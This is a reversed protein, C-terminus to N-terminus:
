AHPGCNKAACNGLQTRGCDYIGPNEELAGASEICRVM